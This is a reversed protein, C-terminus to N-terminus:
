SRIAEVMSKLLKNSEGRGNGRRVGFEQRTNPIATEDKLCYESAGNDVTVNTVHCPGMVKLVKSLRLQKKFEVYGQWHITGNAGCEQQFNLFSCHEPKWEFCDPGHEPNRTLIARRFYSM